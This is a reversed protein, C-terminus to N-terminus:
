PRLAAAIDAGMALQRETYAWDLGGDDCMGSLCAVIVEEEPFAMLWQGGYGGHGIWATNAETFNRYYGKGISHTGQTRTARTRDRFEISGVPAATVGRGARALLLGYRALDRLTMHLGGGMFPTGTRDTTIFVSAEVGAAEIIDLLLARLDRGACRECIWGALDTNATKYHLARGPNAEGSGTITALFGRIGRHTFGPIIRWGHADELEGLTARPDYYDEIYDNIIAMDFLEQVTAQAYGSGIEPIYDSIAKSLDLLGQEILRGAILHVTTKTISQVSHIREPGFDAAYRELVLREGKLVAIGTFLPHGLQWRLSALDHLRFAHNTALPLVAPARFSLGYRHVRHLDMLGRRRQEPQDWEAKNLAGLSIGHPPLLQRTM